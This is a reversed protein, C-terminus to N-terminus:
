LVFSIHLHQGLFLDLSELTWKGLYGKAVVGASPKGQGTDFGREDDFAEVVGESRATTSPTVDVTGELHQLGLVAAGLDDGFNGELIANGALGIAVRGSVKHWNRMYFKLVETM